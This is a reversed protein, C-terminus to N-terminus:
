SYYEGEGFVVLKRKRSDNTFTTMGQEGANM